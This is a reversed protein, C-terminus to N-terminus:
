VPVQLHRTAVYLGEGAPSLSVAIAVAGGEALQGM